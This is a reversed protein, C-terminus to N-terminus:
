YTKNIFSYHMVGERPQKPQTQEQVAVKVEASTFSCCHCVRSAVSGGWAGSFVCM